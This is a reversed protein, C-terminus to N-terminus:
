CAVPATRECQPEKPLGRTSHDVQDGIVRLQRLLATPASESPAAPLGGSGINAVARAASPLLVVSAQEVGQWDAARVEAGDDAAPSAAGAAAAIQELVDVDLAYTKEGSLVSNERM